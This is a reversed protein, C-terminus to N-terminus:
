LTAIHTRMASLIWYLILCVFIKILITTKTDKGKGPFNYLLLGLGVVPTGILLLSIATAWGTGTALLISQPMFIASITALIGAVTGAQGRSLFGLAGVKGDKGSGGLMLLVAFFITFVLVWILIRTIATVATGDTINLFSLNGVGLVKQWISDLTLSQALAIPATTLTLAPVLWMKKM